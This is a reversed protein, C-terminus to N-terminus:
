ISGRPRRQKTIWNLTPEDGNTHTSVLSSQSPDHSSESFASGDISWGAGTPAPSREATRPEETQDDDEGEVVM